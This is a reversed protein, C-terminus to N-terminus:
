LPMKVDAIGSFSPVAILLGTKDILKDEYRFQSISATFWCTTSMFQKQSKHHMLINARQRGPSLLISGVSSASSKLRVELSVTVKWKNASGLLM